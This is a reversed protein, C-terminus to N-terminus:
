DLNGQRLLLECIPIVTANHEAIVSDTTVLRIYRYLLEKTGKTFFGHTVYLHAEVSPTEDIADILGLFTGGGDCIDDVVILKITAADSERLEWLPEVGFGSIRGDKVDRTKWAHILPKELLRAVGSARKEAGADPSVVADVWTPKVHSLVDAAHIVECREILAPMVESHPDVTIVRPFARMNIERAISKATFLFDGESNLRDQRAGPLCPLVLEPTQGGREQIADVWFMAAMFAQMSKPRLLVRQIGRYPRTNILPMGDPYDELPVLWIFNDDTLYQLEFTPDIGGNSM